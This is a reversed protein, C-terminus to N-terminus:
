SVKEQQSENTGKYSRISNSRHGTTEAILQEDFENAYLRTAATARLSHSTRYGELGAASCLRKVVTSLKNIGVPQKGYWVNSIPSKLPRLYFADTRVKPCHSIYKEYLRVTCRKPQEANEYANVVKPALKRHALGGQRTESTDETYRLFRKGTRSTQVQIQSICAPNGCRLNHHEQAARLALNLGFLYVLTDLLESPTKSGLIGRNWM